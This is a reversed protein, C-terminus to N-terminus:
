TNESTTNNYRFKKRFSWVIPVGVCLIGSVILLIAILPFGLKKDGEVLTTPTPSSETSLGLLEPPTTQLIEEFPTPTPNDTPTAKPTPSKTSNPKPTPTKAPTPSPTATPNSTPSNTPAATPSPTPTPLNVNVSFTNSSSNSACSSTFRHAKLNIQGNSVQNDSGIKLSIVLPTTNTNLKVYNLCGQNNDDSTLSGLKVWNGNVKIYGVYSNGSEFGVRFYSDGEPLDTISLSVTVEDEKSSITTPTVSDIQFSFAFVEKQFILALGIPLLFLVLFKKLNTM